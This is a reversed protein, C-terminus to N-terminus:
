RPKVGTTSAVAASSGTVGTATVSYEYWTNTLLGTHTFTTSTATGASGWNGFGATASTTSSRVQIVYGTVNTTPNETWTITISKSGTGNAAVTVNSPNAPLATSVSSSQRYSGTTSGVTNTAIAAIEYTYSNGAVVTTDTYGTSGAPLSVLIAYAGNGTKRQIVYTVGGTTSAPWSLGVSTASAVTATLSAPANPAAPLALTVSGSAVYASTTTGAANTSQAAVQYTYTSGAAATADNYSATASTGITTYTGNGGTKRQIVYTAGPTASAAWTLAVSPGSALTAVVNSVVAPAVPTTLLSAQNSAPSNTTTVPSNYLAIQAFVQYLYTNGNAVTVTSTKATAGLVNGVQTWTTGGNASQQVIYGTVGATTSDTWNLTASTSGATYVVGLGTPAAPAAPASLNVTISAAASNATLGYKIKQAAVTITYNSGLALVPRYNTNTVLVATGGNVSVLYGTAGASAAWTLTVAGTNSIAATLGAPVAPATIETYPASATAGAANWAQVEYSYDSGAVQTTDTFTTANASVAGVATYQPNRGLGNQGYTARLVNFGIENKSNGLTSVGFADVGGAPTPDTWVLTGGSGSLITPADPVTVTPQYVIPRMFDDESHGLVATNWVYENDYNGKLVAGAAGITSGPILNTNTTATLLQTVGNTALVGPDATFGLGSGAVGLPKSPDLSRTSQPQGFPVSPRKARMAIVVDELPNLRLTDKWGVENSAPAKVTGDWGVRNILQVDVFDFHMSNSWFGNDVLKWIQTESDGIIETPADIYNLPITTQTTGSTLPLEVGGTSNYRGSADFLEQEAKTLVPISQTLLASSTVIAAQAGVGGNTPTFIVDPPATCAAGQTTVTVGTVQYSPDIMVPSASAGKANRATDTIKITPAATYGSGPNTVTIATVVGRTVTATAIAQTGGAAPASITVVPNRYGSGGNTVKISSVIPTNFVTATATPYTTCTAGVPFVFSVVPASLYGTGSGPVANGVINNTGSILQGGSSILNVATINFTGSSTFDLNPQAVSGTAVHAYNDTNNSGFAVNYAIEPVIPKPQSAGYAAPLATLLTAANFPVAPITGLITPNVVIQM